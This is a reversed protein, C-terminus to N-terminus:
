ESKGCGRRWQLYDRAIRKRTLMEFGTGSREISAICEEVPPLLAGTFLTGGEEWEQQLVRDTIGLRAAAVHARIDELIEKIRRPDCDPSFDLVIGAAKDDDLIERFRGSLTCFDTDVPVKWYVPHASSVQRLWRSSFRENCPLLLFARAATRVYDCGPDDQLFISAYDLFNPLFSIGDLIKRPLSPSFPRSTELILNWVTYPNDASLVGLMSMLPSLHSENIERLWLTVNNAMRRSMKEATSMLLETGSCQRLDLLIRTIPFDPADAPAENEVRRPYKGSSTRTWRPPTRHWDHRSFRSECAILAERLKEYPLEGTSLVFYPPHQQHRIAFRRRDKWIGAGRYISLVFTWVSSIGATDTIFKMTQSISHHTDGPLGLILDVHVAIGERKLHTLGSLFRERHFSRKVNRLADPDTSQLGVEVEGIGSSKLLRAAEGTVKEALLTVLIELSGDSNIDGLLRSLAAFHPSQNYMSDWFFLLPIGHDKGYRIEKELRELPFCGSKRTFRAPECCYTCKLPCGRATELWMLRYEELRFLDLLYPSPLSHPDIGGPGPPVIGGRGDRPHITAPIKTREGAPAELIRCFTEEGPGLVGMDIGPFLHDSHPTVEPGGAIIATHPLRKKVRSAIHLSREVNWSYLSLGIIEPKVEAILDEIYADGALDNAARNLIQIDFSERLGRSWAAAKLYGAALPFNVPANSEHFVLRPIPLQMFLVRRKNMPM